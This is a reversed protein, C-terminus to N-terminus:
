AEGNAESSNDHFLRPIPHKGVGASAIALSTRMYALFTRESALHDRAVSGSNELRLSVSDYVTFISSFFSLVGSQPPVDEEECIAYEDQLDQASDTPAKPPSDCRSIYTVSSRSRATRSCGQETSEQSSPGSSTSYARRTLSEVDSCSYESADTSRQNRKFSSRSGRKQKRSSQGSPGANALLPTREDFTHSQPGTPRTHQITAM